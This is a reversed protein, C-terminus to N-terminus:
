RCLLPSIPLPKKFPRVAGWCMEGNDLAVVVKWLLALNVILGCPMALLNRHHRVVPGLKYEAGGIFGSANAPSFFSDISPAYINNASDTYPRDNNVTQAFLSGVDSDGNKSIKGQLISLTSSAGSVTAVIQNELIGTLGTIAQYDASTVGSASTGVLLPLDNRNIGLNDWCANRSEVESLNNSSRFGFQQAM